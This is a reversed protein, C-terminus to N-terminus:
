IFEQIIEDELTLMRHKFGNELMDHYRYWSGDKINNKNIYVIEKGFYSCEHFLRPHTDFWECSKYYVFTSFESFLNDIPKDKKFFWDNYMGNMEDTVAQHEVDYPVTTVKYSPHNRHNVFVSKKSYLPKKLLDLRMKMVYRTSGPVDFVEPIESYYKARPINGETGDEVIIHMEKYILPCFLRISNVTSYDLLLIKDIVSLRLESFSKVIINDCLVNLFDNDLNYRNFIFNELSMKHNFHSNLLVLNIDRNHEYITIFYDIADVMSGNLKFPLDKHIEYIILNKFTKL